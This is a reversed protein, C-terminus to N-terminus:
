AGASAIFARVQANFDDRHTLHPNHGGEAIQHLRAHALRRVLDRPHEGRILADKAGHMVLVPCAITELAALRASGQAELRRM